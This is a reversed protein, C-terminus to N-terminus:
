AQPRTELRKGCVTFNIFKFFIVSSVRKRWLKSQQLFLNEKRSTIFVGPAIVNREM